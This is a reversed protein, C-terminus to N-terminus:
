QTIVHVNNNLPTLPFHPHFLFKTSDVPPSKKWTPPHAFKRSTPPSGGDGELLSFLTYIIYEINYLEMHSINHAAITFLVVIVLYYSQLNDFKHISLDLRVEPNRKAVSIVWKFWLVLNLLRTGDYNLADIKTIPPYFLFRLKSCRLM